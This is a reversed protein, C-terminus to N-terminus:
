DDEIEEGPSFVKWGSNKLERYDKASFWNHGVKYGWERRRKGCFVLSLTPRILKIRHPEEAKHHIVDGTTCIRPKQWLLHGSKWDWKMSEEVYGGALIISSFNWPHDHMHDDKDSKYIRHLYVDIWPTQLLSWRKFHLEGKKSRIEKELAWMFHFKFGFLNM